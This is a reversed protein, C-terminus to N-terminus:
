GVFIVKSLYYLQYCELLGIKNIVATTPSYTLLSIISHIVKQISVPIWRGAYIYIFIYIYILVMGTESGM